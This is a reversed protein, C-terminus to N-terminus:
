NPLWWNKAIDSTINSHTAMAGPTVKAHIWFFLDNSSKILFIFVPFLFWHVVITIPVYFYGSNRHPFSKVCCFIVILVGSTVRNGSDCSLVDLILILILIVTITHNPFKAQLSERSQNEWRYCGNEFSRMQIQFLIIRQSAAIDLSWSLAIFRKMVIRRDVPNITDTVSLGKM